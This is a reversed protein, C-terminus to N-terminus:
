LFLRLASFARKPQRPMLTFMSQSLGKAIELHKKFGVEAKQGPWFLEVSGERFKWSLPAESKDMPKATVQLNVVIEPLSKPLSVSEITGQDAKLFAVAALGKPEMSDPLVPTIGLYSQVHLYYPNVGFARSVLDMICDGGTRAGVEIIRVEGSPMVRMEAHAVGYRIGLLAPRKPSRACSPTATM